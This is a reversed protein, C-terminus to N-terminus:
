RRLVLNGRTPATNTNSVFSRRHYNRSVNLSGLSTSRSSSRETARVDSDVFSLEVSAVLRVGAM